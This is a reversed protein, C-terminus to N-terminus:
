STATMQIIISRAYPRLWRFRRLLGADFRNLWDLWAKSKIVRDLRSFLHCERVEITFWKKFPELDRYKFQKKWEEPDEPAESPVPVFRRLNELWLANGFPEWFMAKAGPTMVRRLEAAAISKDQVHHLICHGAVIDFARDPYPLSYLSAAVPACREAVGNVAARTAVTQAAEPSIDFSFVTAGRKALVVSLGGGGCGVDLIRRGKVDGLLRISQIYPSPPDDTDVRQWARDSITLKGEREQRYIDHHRQIESAEEQRIAESRTTTM